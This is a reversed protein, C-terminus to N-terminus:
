AGMAEALDAEVKVNGQKWFKAYDPRPDPQGAKRAARIAFKSETIFYQRAMLARETFSYGSGWCKFCKSNEVHEFGAMYGCGGCRGCTKLTFGYQCFIRGTDNHVYLTVGKERLAKPTDIRNWNSM